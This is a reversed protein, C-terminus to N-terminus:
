GNAADRTTEGWGSNCLLRQALRERESSTLSEVRRLPWVSPQRQCMRRLREDGVGPIAELFEYLRMRAIAVPRERLMQAAEQVAEPRSLSALYRKVDASRFRIENAGVLAARRQRTSNILASM